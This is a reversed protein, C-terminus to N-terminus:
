ARETGPDLRDQPQGPLTGPAEVLAGVELVAAELRRETGRELAPWLLRTGVLIAALPALVILLPGGMGALGGFGGLPLLALGVALAVALMLMLLHGKREATATVEVFGGDPQVCVESRGVGHEERWILQNGAEEIEGRRELARDLAARLAGAREASLRGPIRASVTPSVPAGMLLRELPDLPTASILAARRVADPDIGAERAAAALEDLTLGGETGGDEDSETARRLITAVEQQTFRREGGAM